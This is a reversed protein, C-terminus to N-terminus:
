RTVKMISELKDPNQSTSLAHKSEEIWKSNQGKTEWNKINREIFEDRNESNLLNEM